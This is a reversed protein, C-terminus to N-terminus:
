RFLLGYDKGTPKIDMKNYPIKKMSDLSPSPSTTSLTIQPLVGDTKFLDAVALKFNHLTQKLGRFDNNNDVNTFMNPDYFNIKKFEKIFEEKKNEIYDKYFSQELIDLKMEYTSTIADYANHKVFNFITKELDTVSDRLIPTNM